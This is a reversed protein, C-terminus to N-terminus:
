PGAPLLRAALNRTALGLRTAPVLLAASRRVGRQRPMVLARHAAEYRDLATAPATPHAALAAALARAGAIALSSGDGLLSVCSAADGLLAIRGRSWSPLDVISVADFYLDDTNQLRDLLHPVRWGLGAHSATVIRKHLATDRHDFATIDPRRFIFAALAEGRSPHVSVLRGPANCVVVEHPHDAPEGLPVTAVLIGTPRVFDREPGFALHRVTSHLGDAGIVFDFRRPAAQEFTVDVGHEDQRLATISDGFLFEAEDRAAEHLVAALDGRPVEVERHGTRGRGASMRVRAVERGTANLLRMATASTAAARLQPLVGMAEAVPLAPGRVDVPNGSSRLGQAKEVVTPRFGHRALWHALTPGAVGAGSVLVSRPTM